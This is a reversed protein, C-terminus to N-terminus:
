TWIKQSEMFQLRSAEEAWPIRGPLFAPTPLWDKRWPIKGVWLQFGSGRWQLCNKVMQTLLLEHVYIHVIHSLCLPISLRHVNLQKEGGHLIGEDYFKMM